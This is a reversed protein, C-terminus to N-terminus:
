LAHCLQANDNNGPIPILYIHSNKINTGPCKIPERILVRGRYKIELKNFAFNKGTLKKRLLILFKFTVVKREGM